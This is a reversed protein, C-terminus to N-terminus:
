ITEGDFRRLERAAGQVTTLDASVDRDLRGERVLERGAVTVLSAGRGSSAFLLASEPDQVPQAHLGDLPFAALDASKGVDLSGIEADLGLARAGGLTAMALADHARFVDWSAAWARALLVALRAEDLIDMRNNSAVSDTGLGVRIGAARMAVVPAVGHGLKANSAPCHAVACDRAAITALDDDSLRV